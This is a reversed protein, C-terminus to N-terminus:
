QAIKLINLKEMDEMDKLVKSVNYRLEHFKEVTMEFTKRKGESFFFVSFVGEM